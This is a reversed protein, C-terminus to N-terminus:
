RTARAMEIMDPTVQFPAVGTTAVATSNMKRELTELKLRIATLDEQMVAISDGVAVQQKAEPARSIAMWSIVLLGAVVVLLKEMDTTRM